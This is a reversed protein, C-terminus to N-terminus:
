TSNAVKVSPWNRHNVCAFIANSGWSSIPFITPLIKHFICIHVNESGVIGFFAGGYKRRQHNINFLTHLCNDITWKLSIRRVTVFHGCSASSDGSNSATVLLRGNFICCAPLINLPNQPSRHITSILLPETIVLLKSHHMCTILLDLVWNMGRRDHRDHSYRLYLKGQYYNHLPEVSNIVQDWIDWSWRM